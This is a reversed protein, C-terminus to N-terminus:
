GNWIGTLALWQSERGVLDAEFRQRTLGSEAEDDPIELTSAQEIRSALDRLM